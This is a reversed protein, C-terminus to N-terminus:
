LPDEGFDIFKRRSEVMIWWSKSNVLCSVKSTAAALSNMYRRGTRRVLRYSDFWSLRIRASRYLSKMAWKCLDSDGDVNDRRRQSASALRRIPNEEVLEFSELSRNPNASPKLRSLDNQYVQARTPRLALNPSRDSNVENINTGHYRRKNVFLKDFFNSAKSPGHSNLHRMPSWPADSEDADWQTPLISALRPDMSADPPENM